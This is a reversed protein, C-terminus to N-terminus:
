LSLVGGVEGPMPQTSKELVPLRIKQENSELHSLFEYVTRDLGNKVAAELWQDLPVETFSLGERKELYNRLKNPPIKRDSCHHLYRITPQELFHTSTLATHVLASSVQEVEVMDFVGEIREPNFVPVARTLRSYQLLTAMLDLPPAGDGIVTSLRHIWIPTKKNFAVKELLAESVWKSKGYGNNSSSVPQKGSVPVEHLAHIDSSVTAVSASSIFHLPIGRPIALEILTKTSLVNVSRLSEYTRMFSVHAGNHIIIDTNEALFRFTSESLGLFHDSLDGPHEVIKEHKVSVHRPRGENDRRIAVCHVEKVREDRVLRRLIHTGLFGTAGTLIIFGKSVPRDSPLVRPKPLNDCLAEIEINWDIKQDHHSGKQEIKSAMTRLDTIQFLEPLTFHIDFCTELSARLKLALMSNGGLQWFNSSTTITHPKGPVATLVDQWLSKLKQELITLCTDSTTVTQSPFSIPLSDIANRDQKGNINLPLHAVEMMIAPRMYPPLPVGQQLQRLFKSTNGDFGARFVVFAVLLDSQKRYSVAVNMIVMPAMQNIVNAIENLEVRVGHIKVQSDGEFRGLVQLSGDELLRGRDGTRYAMALKTSGGSNIDLPLEFFRNNNEEPRNLYGLSVGTGLICIEGLFGTPLPKGQHNVIAISYNPLPRLSDSKTTIDEEDVYGVVGRACSITAETPGYANIFVLSTTLGLDRFGRRLQPGVKEGLAVAYRWSKCSSLLSSSYHILSLYESPVFNTYSVRESSIIHAIHRPDGRGERGVVILTGGNAIATFIQDLCIDFGFSSQQLVIERGIGYTSINGFVHNLINLHSIRVGKPKGTSGSTYLLVASNGLQSVNDVKFTTSIPEDLNLIRSTSTAILSATLKTNDSCVIADPLCDAVIQSLRPRPHGPDLPVWVLGLRLIALLCCIADITPELLMAVFSGPEISYSCLSNAIRGSRVMMQDYTVSRGRDDKIAVQDSYNQAMSEIRDIVTGGWSIEMNRGLGHSLALDVDQQTYFPCDAVRTLPAKTFGEISCIYWKMIFRSDASDYLYRQSSLSIIAKDATETIDIMLDYPNRANIGGTWEIVHDGLPSSSSFGVRYNLAVQFLPHVSGITQVGLHDLITNFPLSKSLAALTSDRSQQVLNQFSQQFDLSFRLPVMNLFHGITKRDEQDPRNADVIGISFDCTDLCHGLMVALCTLYFHFTTVGLRSATQRVSRTLEPTLKIDFTETDHNVLLKRAPAKSFGFLPLHKVPIKYIGAWFKLRRKTFSRRSLSTKKSTMDIAQQIHDNLPKGSYAQHLDQMFSLWGLGDLAIHHHLIIIRHSLKTQSLIVIKLTDAQGIDFVHHRLSEVEKEIDNQSSIHRQELAIHPKWRVAQIAKGSSKEILFSTRLGEHRLSVVRLAQHLNDLHVEGTMKGIYGVNYSTKDQLYDHLFFLRAQSESMEGIRQYELETMESDIRENQARTPKAAFLPPLQMQGAQGPSHDDSFGDFESEGITAVTADAELKSHRFKTISDRCVDEISWGSLIQLVPVDVGLEKLLWSRIEVAILSDIGMAVLPTSQCINDHSEQLVLSLKVALAARLIQVADENDQAENVRSRVQHMSSDQRESRGPEDNVSMEGYFDPPSSYHAFRSIHRWPANPHTGLGTLLEVDSDSDPRGTYIAEAFINHLDPESLALYAFRSMQSEIVSKTSDLSRTVYGVGLLMAMDIVSASLGRSRRRAALSSMFMNAAGYNSQAPNGVVSSMSSFLIFFELEVGYFLDDLNQSGMVKPRIVKEFDQLSMTDLPRDQLVMAANAVGAVPPMTSAIEKYAQYLAAKEAIDFSFVRLDAGKDKLHTIVVEDIQPDRSAVAFHRAGHHVMWECLSMGVDGTLGVLFYTKESSFLGTADLPTALVSVSKAKTWDVIALPSQSVEWQSVTDISIPHLDSRANATPTYSRVLEQVITFCERKNLLLSLFYQEASVRYPYHSNAGARVVAETIGFPCVSNGLSLDVFRDLNFPVFSQIDRTPTREHIFVPRRKPTSSSTSFFLNFDVKSGIASLTEQMDEDANHVWLTQTVGHSISECLLTSLLARFNSADDEVWDLNIVDEKPVTVLSASVPSLVMVKQSSLVTLGICLYFSHKDLTSLPVLTSFQVKVTVDEAGHQPIVPSSERLLLSGGRCTIEVPHTETSVRYEIKRRSSNYRRNLTDDPIIRPIHLGDEAVLLETEISWMIDKFEPLDLYVLRLLMEALMKPSALHRSELDLTQLCIHPHEMAASRGLGVIMNAYPDSTRCGSSVWLIHHASKFITQVANFKELELQRFCPEDLDCMCLVISGPFIGREVVTELNELVLVNSAFPVLHERIAHALQTTSSSSGGVITIDRIPFEKVKEVLPDRLCSVNPDMAQSIIVSVTHKSPDDTNRLVSDLGSFHCCKLISDWQTETVTPSQARGDEQGLWWGPLTGVMFPVRITENTIETMVLFGGPRLLSRCNAVTESLSKTAHLVNSAIVLDFSHEAFNQERPPQEINLVRFDMKLGQNKEFRLRASEFFGSSIDTFTYTDFNNGIYHFVTETSSGTGAGVELIKMHPYQHALRSIMAAVYHNAEYFGLGDRYLRYLRNNEMLIQLAPIRGRVIEPLSQGIAYIIEVDVQDQVGNKLSRITELTDHKWEPNASVRKNPRTKSGVSRHAWDVFCQLHHEMSVVREQSVQRVLERLFFHVMRDCSIYLDECLNRRKSIMLESSELPCAVHKKWINRAFISRDNQDSPTLFSSCVLGQIQIEPNTDEASFVDVDGTITRFSADRIYSDSLWRSSRQRNASLSMINIRVQKISTPLYPTPMRYDGPYCFAAFMGHLAADLNAPDVRLSNEETREVVVTSFNLRRMISSALFGGSYQLGLSATWSYFRMTDVSTLPLKPCARPPLTGPNPPGLMIHVKGSFNLHDPPQLSTSSFADKSYCSYEASIEKRDNSKVRVVFTVETGAAGEPVTLAHHFQLDDAEILQVESGDALYMAAEYVMSIYGSAPFLVQHQFQHGRLWEMEDLKFINRWRMEKGYSTLRGLLENVPDKRSRWLMSMASERFLSTRHDWSYTPLNKVLRLQAFDKGMCAVLFSEFNIVPKPSEIHKWISGLTQFISTLDDTNRELTGWYPIEVGTVIKFTEIVPSRLSPHPGVEIAIDFCDEEAIARKLAQYFLVPLRMNQVWYEDALDQSNEAGRGDLGYVSSYWHCERSARDGPIHIPNLRLLQLYPDICPEMHPSHYAKDVQLIKASVCESQMISEAADIADEDGSLTVSVRSNIAAIHIKGQFPERECFSMAERHSLKAAMMKGRKGDKSQAQYCALGRCYAIRIADASSLYGAAYAAAIEGSSHGVVASFRLGATKLLDVLAVQVATTLPQLFEAGYAPSTVPKNMLENTLSWNNEQTLDRLAKELCQITKRFPECFAYLRRGMGHWQAGQGTFVGLIRLPYTNSVSILRRHAASHPNTHPKEHFLSLKRALETTSTASFAQRFPFTTRRCQLTWSLDALNMSGPEQLRDHLSAIMAQLSVDSNASITVLGVPWEPMTLENHTSNLHETEFSEIIVHANTGGFGFSNVSVRRPTGVPLDPWPLLETPVCFHSYFPEIAPNLTKFLMNPPIRGHQVSLSAKLVGALSAAGESHGIVTKISGVYVVSGPAQSPASESFFAKHMAEAEKPDGTLTGTGHAEFYQCRDQPKTCDLGCKSYTAKILSAQSMVGPVTLGSTRGDQNVGTERVICEVHDKQTIAEDLRKLILAAFGEGRAYGDAGADWMRSRGTPSLMHLQYM